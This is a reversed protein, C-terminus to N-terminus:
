KKVPVDRTCEPPAPHTTGCYSPYPAEVPSITKAPQEDEGEGGGCATLLITIWCSVMVILIKQM